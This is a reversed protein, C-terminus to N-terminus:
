VPVVVGLRARVVADAAETAGAAGTVAAVFDPGELALLEADTRATVTATRPVERLLAIERESVPLGDSDPM